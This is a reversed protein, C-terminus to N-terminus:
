RVRRCGAEPYLRRDTLAALVKRVELADVSDATRPIIQRPTNEVARSWVTTTAANGLTM